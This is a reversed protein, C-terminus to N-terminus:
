IDRRIRHNYLEFRAGETLDGSRGSVIQERRPGLISYKESTRTRQKPM